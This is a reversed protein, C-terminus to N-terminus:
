RDIRPDSAVYAADAAANAIVVVFSVALLVAVVLPYDRQASADLLLRGIGPWGFVVEVLAAGTLLYGAQHGILPIAPLLANPLAHRLIAGVRSHGRARAARVYERRVEILVSSRVVRALVALFGFSLCLAPLALHWLVDGLPGASQGRLSSLGGVPFLPVAVAFALLLLQGTWFVPAAVLVSSAVRATVDAWSGPAIGALVGLGLGAVAAMVLATASLLLTAPLRDLIVTVVPQQYGYSYGFDGQMVSQLYRVYQVPLTRDLGYRARMQAYYAADGGEGAMMYVPDGPSLHILAFAITVIGAVVPVAHLARRLAIRGLRSATM